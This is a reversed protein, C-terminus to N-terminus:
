QGLAKRSGAAAAATLGSGAAAITPGLVAKEGAQQTELQDQYDTASDVIVGLDTTIAISESGVHGPNHGEVAAVSAAHQAAGTEGRGVRRANYSARTAGTVDGHASTQRMDGTVRGAGEDLGAAAGDLARGQFRTLGDILDAISM